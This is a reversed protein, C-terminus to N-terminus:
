RHEGFSYGDDSLIVILTRDLEGRAEIQQILSKISRDVAGLTELMHRRQLDLSAATDGDIPDRESIWGPRGRVDNLVRESPTAILVDAFTGADEPAPTWPEHPATPAFVLFWPQQASAGELFSTAEAGLMTTAYAPGTTGAVLPVGQDVLPYGLYTTSVDLNRKALFRDWGQPVYPGRDWPYGNLYKGIFATQYGADDLWTALTSSEAFEPVM